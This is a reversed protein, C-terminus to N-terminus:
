GLTERNTECNHVQSHPTQTLLRLGCIANNSLTRPGLERLFIALQHDDPADLLIEELAKRLAHAVVAESPAAAPKMTRMSSRFNTWITSPINVALKQQLGQAICGLQVFRHYADLGYKEHLM